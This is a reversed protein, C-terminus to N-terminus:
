KKTRALRFGVEPDSRAHAHDADTWQRQAPNPRFVSQRYEMPIADRWQDGYASINAYSGAASPIRTTSGEPAERHRKDYGGGRLLGSEHDYPTTRPWGDRIPNANSEQYDSKGRMEDRYEQYVKESILGEEHLADLEDKKM